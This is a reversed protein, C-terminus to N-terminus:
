SPGELYDPKLRALETLYTLNSEIHDVMRARAAEADGAGIARMISAHFALAQRPRAVHAAAIHHIRDMEARATLVVKWMMRLGTARFLTEHFLSDLAYVRDLDRLRLARRQGAVVAGLEIQLAGHGDLAAARAAAEGELLARMAVAESLRDVSIKAVFTGFGPRIDVLGEDRLRKLADRMPTRSVGASVALTAEFIPAGPAHVLRVIDERVGEYLSDPETTRM